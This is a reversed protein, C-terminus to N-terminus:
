GDNVEKLIKKIVSAEGQRFAVEDLTMGPKYMDRDVLVNELHDLCKRGLETEFTGKFLAKIELYKDENNM